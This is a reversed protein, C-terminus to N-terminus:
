PMKFLVHFLMEDTESTLLGWYGHRELLTPQHLEHLANDRLASSWVDVVRANDACAAICRAGSRMIRAEM